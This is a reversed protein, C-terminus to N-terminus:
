GEIRSSHHCYRKFDEEYVNLLGSANEGKKSEARLIRYNKRNNKTILWEADDKLVSIIAGRNLPLGERNFVGHLSGMLTGSADRLPVSAVPLPTTGGTGWDGPNM